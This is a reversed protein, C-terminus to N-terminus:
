STAPRMKKTSRPGSFGISFTMGTWSPSRTQVAPCQPTSPCDSTETMVLADASSMFSATPSATTRMM